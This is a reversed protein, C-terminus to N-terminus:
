ELNQVHHAFGVQFSPFHPSTFHPSTHHSSTHHPSTLFTRHTTTPRYSSPPSPLYVTVASSGASLCCVFWGVSLVWRDAALLLRDVALLWRNVALLRNCHWWSMDGPFFPHRKRFVARAFSPALSLGVTEGQSEARERTPIVSNRRTECTRWGVGEARIGVRGGKYRRLYVPDFNHTIVCLASRWEGQPDSAQMMAAFFNDWDCQSNGGGM